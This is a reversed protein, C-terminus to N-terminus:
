IMQENTKHCHPSREFDCLIKFFIKCEQRKHVFVLKGFGCEFLVVSSDSFESDNKYFEKEGKKEPQGRLRKGLRCRKM